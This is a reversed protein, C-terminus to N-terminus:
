ADLEGIQKLLEKADGHVHWCIATSFSQIRSIKKVFELLRDYNKYADIVCSCISVKELTKCCENM